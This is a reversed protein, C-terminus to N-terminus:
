RWALGQSVSPCGIPWKSLRQRIRLFLCENGVDTDRPTSDRQVHFLSGDPRRCRCLAFRTTRQLEEIGFPGCFISWGGQTPTCRAQPQGKGNFIGRSAMGSTDAKELLVGPLLRVAARATTLRVVFNGVGLM